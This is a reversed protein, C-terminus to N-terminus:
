LLFIKDLQGYCVATDIRVALNKADYCLYEALEMDNEYLQRVMGRIFQTVMDTIETVSKGRFVEALRLYEAEQFGQAGLPKQIALHGVTNGLVVSCLNDFMERYEINYKHLVSLVYERDFKQLFMQEKQIACLYVYVADAGTYRSWDTLVPYDLTLITDQPCFQVDYRELFQPIGKRVTDHLCCVGFDEFQESLANFINAIETVKQTLLRVGAQYQEKASMAKQVSVVGAEQRCEELCYLVAALLEQAREYTVSTSENHTYKKALMSVIPFLEEMEYDM